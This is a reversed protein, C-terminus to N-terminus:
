EYRLAVMPDVRAARRAPVWCAVLAVAVLFVVTAAYTAPDTPKVGFLLNGLLRSLAFAGALGIAVGGVALRLGEGVIMRAVGGTPAGLAMRIGIERTRLEVSYALVGYIGLGALALAVAAFVGVLMLNFRRPATATSFNQELTAFKPAVEPDLSRVAERVSPILSTPDGSTHLVWTFFAVMAGKDRQLYHTYVAGNPTAEPGSYKVDGVVGVITMWTEDGDMNGTNIRLGIPDEGPFVKDAVDQSIIAVQPTDPRDTADFFRGRLLPIGLTKFYATSALRYSPWYDGSHERGEILFRGNPSHASMPPASTGGVSLVGPLAALTEELQRAFERTRQKEQDNRPFPLQLDLALRNEKQFGLDVSLVHAFSRALLGAGVLLTLTLAVQAAALAGRLRKASGGGSGGRGAENMVPLLELRGARWGPVLGLAVSVLVSVALTFGLVVTDVQVNEARPIQGQGLALLAQVGWSALLGGLLAALLALLLSETVCQRVMRARNAGLAGRVAFEKERATARALLLNMVNACAILLLLGVAGSLMLLASRIPAAFADALPLVTADVATVDAYQSRIRKAIQSLERRAGDATADPKLRAMVRWNHASRSPNVPGFVSRPVWVDVRAPFQFGPPAVGVVSFSYGLARIVKGDLDAEGGLYKRWYVHSVVVGPAAGPRADEPGLLRGLFPQVRLVSFFDSSVVSALTRVPESGGALNAEFSNYFGMREYSRAGAQWDLFNQEPVNMQNGERSIERLMVLRDPQDYPLPQLLVGNVVSFIATTAGIGLALTLVAVATFGPARALQRAGYRLDQWLTEM